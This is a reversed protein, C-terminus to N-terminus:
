ILVLANRHLGYSETAKCESCLWSQSEQQQLNDRMTATSRSVVNGDKGLAYEESDEDAKDDHQIPSYQQDANINMDDDDDGWDGDDEDFDDNDDESVVVHDTLTVDQM